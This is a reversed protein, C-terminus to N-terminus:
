GRSLYVLAIENTDQRLELSGSLGFASGGPSYGERLNRCLQFSTSKSAEIATHIAQKVVSVGSLCTLTAMADIEESLSNMELDQLLAIKLM